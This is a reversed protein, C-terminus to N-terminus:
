FDYRDSLYFLQFDRSDFAGHTFDEYKGPTNQIMVESYPYKM